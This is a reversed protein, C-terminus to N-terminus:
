PLDWEDRFYDADYKSSSHPQIPYQALEDVVKMAEIFELKSDQVGRELKPLVEDLFFDARDRQQIFGELIPEIFRLINDAGEIV